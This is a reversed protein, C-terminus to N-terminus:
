EAAAQDLETSKQTELIKIKTEPSSIYLEECERQADILINIAHGTARFLKQYLKQYDPM